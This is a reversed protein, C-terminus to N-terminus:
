EGVTVWERRADSERAAAIIEETRLGDLLTPLHPVTQHERDGRRIAQVFDAILRNWTHQILTAGASIQDGEPIPLVHPQDDTARQYKV